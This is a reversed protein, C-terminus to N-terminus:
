SPVRNRKPKGSEELTIGECFTIRSPVKYKELKDRCYDLIDKEVINSDRCVINVHITNDRIEDQVGYALVDSVGPYSAIVEEIEDPYVAEAGIKIMDDMRGKLFLFGKKDIYGVDGTRFGAASFAVATKEPNKWYGLALNPGNIIIEGEEYPQCRQFQQNFVDISVGATPAGVSLNKDTDTSCITMYTARPAETLGYTNYQTASPFIEAMNRILSSNVMASSTEVVRVSQLYPRIKQKPHKLLLAYFSPVAPLITVHHKKVASLFQGILTYQEGTVIKAGARLQALMHLLGACHAYSMTVLGTDQPTLRLHEMIADTAVVLNTESLMVGKPRGTTGSTYIISFIELLKSPLSVDDKEEQIRGAMSLNNEEIGEKLSYVGIPGSTFHKGADCLFAFRIRSPNSTARQFTNTNTLLGTAGSDGLIYALKETPLAPSLLVPICNASLTALYGYIFEARNELCLGIRSGEAVGM